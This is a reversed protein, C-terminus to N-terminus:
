WRKPDFYRFQGIAYWKIGVPKRGRPRIVKSLRLKYGNRKQGDVLTVSTPGQLRTARAILAPRGRSQVMVVAAGPLALQLPRGHLPLYGTRRIRAITSASDPVRIALGRQM